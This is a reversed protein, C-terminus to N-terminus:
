RLVNEVHYIIELQTYYDGQPAAYLGAYPSTQIATPVTGCSGGPSWCNPVNEYGCAGGATSGYHTSRSVMWDGNVLSNADPWHGMECVFDPITENVTGYDIVCPLDGQAYISSLLTLIICFLINLTAM